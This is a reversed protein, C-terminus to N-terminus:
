AREAGVDGLIQEEDKPRRNRIESKQDRVEARWSRVEQGGNDM